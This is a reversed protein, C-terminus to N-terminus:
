AAEQQYHTRLQNWRAELDKPKASFSINAAHDHFTVQCCASCCGTEPRRQGHLTRWDEVPTTYPRSTELHDFRAHLDRIHPDQEIVTMLRLLHEAAGQRIAAEKAAQRERDAQQAQRLNEAWHARERQAVPSDPAPTQSTRDELQDLRHSLKRITDLACTLATETSALRDEITTM